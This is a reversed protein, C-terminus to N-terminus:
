NLSGPPACALTCTVDCKLREHCCFSTIAITPRLPAFSGCAASVGFLRCAGCDPPWRSCEATTGIRHAQVPPREQFRHGRGAAELKHPLSAPAARADDVHVRMAHKRF